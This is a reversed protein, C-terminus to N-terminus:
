HSDSEWLLASLKENSIQGVYFLASEESTRMASAVRFVTTITVRPADKPLYLDTVQTRETGMLCYEPYVLQEQIFLQFRYCNFQFPMNETDLTMEFAREGDQEFVNNVSLPIMFQLDAQTVQGLKVVSPIGPHSYYYADIWLRWTEFPYDNSEASPVQFWWVIRQDGSPDVFTDAQTTGLYTALDDPPFRLPEYFQNGVALTSDITQVNVRHLAAVIGIYTWEDLEARVHRVITLTNAEDVDVPVDLLITENLEFVPNLTDEIRLFSPLIYLEDDKRILTDIVDRTYGANFNFAFQHMDDIHAQLHFPVPRRRSDPELLLPVCERYFLGQETYLRNLATLMEQYTVAQLAPPLMANLANVDRQCIAEFYREIIKLEKSKPITFVVGLMIAILLLTIGYALATRKM